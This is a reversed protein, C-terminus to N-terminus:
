FKEDPLILKEDSIRKRMQDKLPKDASKFWKSMKTYNDVINQAKGDPSQFNREWEGHIANCFTECNDVTADYNFRINLCAQARKLYVLPDVDGEMTPPRVVFCLQLHDISSLDEERITAKSQIMLDMNPAKVHIFKNNESIIAVHAYSKHTRGRRMMWLQDGPVLLSRVDDMRQMIETKVKLQFKGHYREFKDRTTFMSPCEVRDLIECLAETKLREIEEQYRQIKERDDNSQAVASFQTVAEQLGGLTGEQDRFECLIKVYPNTPSQNQYVAEELKWADDANFLKTILEWVIKKETPLAKTLEMSLKDFFNKPLDSLLRFNLPFLWHNEDPIDKKKMRWLKKAREISVTIKANDEKALSQKIVDRMSLPTLNQLWEVEEGGREIIKNLLTDLDDETTDHDTYSRVTGRLAEM